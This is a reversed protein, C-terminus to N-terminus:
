VQYHNRHTTMTTAQPQSSNLLAVYAKLQWTPVREPASKYAFIIWMWTATMLLLASIHIVNLPQPHSMALPALTHEIFSVSLGYAFAMFATFTFALPITFRKNPQILSLAVQTGAIVTIVLLFLTTDGALVSKNTTLAFIAAASVGATLALLFRVVSPPNHLSLRPQKAASGSALFLYAKFLGHWFIHAIAAPFLGLGCQAIMFGMQGMTSYALMQKINSQILKWLTALIASIIGIVFIATLLLPQESLLPAFRALLFGGGNVLGAHMIASVPTPANLSNSLWKHFPWLASQTMAALVILSSSLLLYGSDVESALMAQLSTEGSARYLILLGCCLLLWGCAFNRLAMRASQQAAPWQRNHAMLRVLGLNAGAMAGLLLVMHDALVLVFLCLVVMLLYGYFGARGRDGALYRWAFLAICLAVFGILLLMVSSLSDHHFLQEVAMM